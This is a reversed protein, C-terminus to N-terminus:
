FPPLEGEESSGANRSAPPPTVVAGDTVVAETPKAPPSSPKNTPAPTPKSVPAPSTSPTSPAPPPVVPARQPSSSPQPAPNSPAPASTPPTTSNTPTPKVGTSTSYTSDREIKAALNLSLDNNIAVCNPRTQCTSHFRGEDNCIASVARIAYEPSLDTASIVYGEGRLECRYLQKYVLQNNCEMRAACTVRRSTYKAPTFARECKAYADERAEDLDPRFTKEGMIQCLHNAQVPRPTNVTYAESCQANRYCDKDRTQRHSQCSQIVKDLPNEREPAELKFDLGRSFTLCKLYRVQAGAIESILLISSLALYIRLM